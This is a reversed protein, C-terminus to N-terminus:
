HRTTLFYNQSLTRNVGNEESTIFDWVGSLCAAETLVAVCFGTVFNDKKRRADQTRKVGDPQPPPRDSALIVLNVAAM